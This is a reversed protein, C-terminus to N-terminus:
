ALRENAFLHKGKVAERLVEEARKENKLAICLRVLAEDWQALTTPIWKRDEIAPSLLAESEKDPKGKEFWPRMQALPTSPAAEKKTTRLHNYLTVMAETNDQSIEDLLSRPASTPRIRDLAMGIDIFIQDRMGMRSGCRVIPVLLGERYSKAAVADEIAKQLMKPADKDGMNHAILAQEAQVWVDGKLALAERRRGTFSLLRCASAGGSRAWVDLAETPRERCLLAQVREYFNTGTIRALAADAGKEDGALTLLAVIATPKRGAAALDMGKLAPFDEMECILG